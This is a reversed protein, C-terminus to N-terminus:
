IKILKEIYQLDSIPADFFDKSWLWYDDHDKRRYKQCLKDDWVRDWRNQHNKDKKELRQMIAITLKGREEGNGDDNQAFFDLGNQSVTACLREGNLLLFGDSAEVKTGYPINVQGCIANFRARKKVIYNSYEV